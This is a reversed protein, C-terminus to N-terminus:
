GLLRQGLIALLSGALIVGLLIGLLHAIWRHPTKLGMGPRREVRSGLDGEGDLWRYLERLRRNLQGLM